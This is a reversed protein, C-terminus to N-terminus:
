GQAVPPRSDDPEAREPAAPLGLALRLFGQREEPSFDLYNALLEVVQRSPRREGTEIKAITETSYGLRQALDKRTLGLAKRRDRLWMGFSPNSHLLDEM